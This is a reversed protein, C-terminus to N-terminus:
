WISLNKREKQREKRRLVECSEELRCGTLDLSWEGTGEEWEAGKKVGGEGGVWKQELPAWHRRNEAGM